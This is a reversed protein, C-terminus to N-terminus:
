HHGESYIQRALDPDNIEILVDAPPRFAFLDDAVAEPAPYDIRTEISQGDDFEVLRKVPRLSDPDFWITEARPVAGGNPPGPWRLAIKRARRGDITDPEVRIEAHHEEAWRLLAESGQVLGENEPLRHGTALETSWAAVIRGRVDWRFDWRRNRVFVAILEHNNRVEERRGKDRVFWTEERRIGNAQRMLMVSHSSPVKTWAAEVAKLLSAANAHRPRALLGIAGILLVAAAAATIKTRWGALRKHGFSASGPITALCRDLLDDPVPGSDIERLRRDLPSPDGSEDDPLREDCM